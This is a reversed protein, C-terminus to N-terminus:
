GAARGGPRKKREREAVYVTMIEVASNVDEDELDCLRKLLEMLGPHRRICDHVPNIDPPPTQFEVKKEDLTMESLSETFGFLFAPNIKYKHIFESLKAADISATRGRELSSYGSQKFGLMKGFDTQNMKEFLHYRVLALSKYFDV